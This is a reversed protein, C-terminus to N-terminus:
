RESCYIPLQLVALLPCLWTTTLALPSPPCSHIPLSSLPLLSLYTRQPWETLHFTPFLLLTVVTPVPLFLLMSAQCLKHCSTVDALSVRQLLTTIALDSSKLAKEAWTQQERNDRASYSPLPRGEIRHRM